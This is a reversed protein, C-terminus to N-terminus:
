ATSCGYRLTHLDAAIERCLKTAARVQELDFVNDGREGRDFQDLYDLDKKIIGVRYHTSKGALAAEHTEGHVLFNRKPLLEDLKKYVRDLIPKSEKSVGSHDCWRKFAAIKHGFTGSLDDFIVEIGPESIYDAFIIMLFEVRGCETLFEGLARHMEDRPTESRRLRRQWKRRRKAKRSRRSM